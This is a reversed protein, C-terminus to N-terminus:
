FPLSFMDREMLSVEGGFVGPLFKQSLAQELSNFLAGCNPVVHQLYNWECQLSKTLAIFAAQPQTIAIQSLCEIDRM